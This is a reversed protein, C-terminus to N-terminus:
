QWHALASIDPFLASNTDTSKIPSFFWTMNSYHKRWMCCTSRKTYNPQNTPQISSKQRKLPIEAMNRCPLLLYGIESIWTALRPISGRAGQEALWSSLWKAMAAGKQITLFSIQKWDVFLFVFNPTFTNWPVCFIFRIVSFKWVICRNIKVNKDELLILIWSTTAAFYILACPRIPVLVSTTPYWLQVFPVKTISACRRVFHFFTSSTSTKPLSHLIDFIKVGGPIRITKGLANCSVLLATPVIHRAKDLGGWLRCPGSRQGRQNNTPNGEAM